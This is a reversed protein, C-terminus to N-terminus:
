LDSLESSDSDTSRTKEIGASGPLFAGGIFEGEDDSSPMDEVKAWRYALHRAYDIDDGADFFRFEHPRQALFGNNRAIWRCRKFEPAWPKRRVHPRPARSSLCALRMHNLNAASLELKINEGCTTAWRIKLSTAPASQGDYEVDPVAVEVFPPKCQPDGQLSAELSAQMCADTRLKKLHELWTVEPMKSKGTVFRCLGTHGGDLEFFPIGEVTEVDKVVWPFAPLLSGGKVLHQVEVIAAMAAIVVSPAVARICYLAVACRGVPKISHLLVHWYCM